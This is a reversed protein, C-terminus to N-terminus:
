KAMQTGDAWATGSAKAFVYAAGACPVPTLPDGVEPKRNRARVVILDGSVAVSEGFGDFLTSESSSLTLSATPEDSDAWETVPKTFVYVTGQKTRVAELPSGTTDTETSGVVITDGDIAVAYGFQEGANITPSTLKAPTEDGLGDYVYVAGIRSNTDKVGVVITGDDGVAVENGFKDDAAGSSDELKELEYWPGTSTVNITIRQQYTRAAVLSGPKRIGATVTVPSAGVSIPGAVTIQGTAADIAFSSNANLPYTAVNGSDVPLNAVVPHGVDVGAEAWQDVERSPNLGETFAPYNFEGQLSPRGLALTTGHESQLPTHGSTPAQRSKPKPLRFSYPLLAITRPQVSM